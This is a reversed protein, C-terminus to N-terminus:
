TAATSSTVESASSTTSATRSGAGSYTDNTLNGNADYQMVGSQGAPVGLRNTNADIAFQQGNIGTGFYGGPSRNGYRDLTQGQAGTYNTGNQYEGVWNLRNLADYGYNQQMASASSIADDNPVFYQQMLLNGNNDPGSGGPSAPQFSYYNVIGGRNWNDADNVTSLRMDWLQGRINRREKHYLPTTTGFQERSLGNWEDYSISAAYTRSVGDGLSGTFNQTRGAIDYTYNVVRGSPYTQSEVSGDLYYTRQVSFVPSWAGGGLNFYEKKNTVRGMVDYDFQIAMAKSGLMQNSWMRGRGNVAGDYYYWISPTGDNYDIITNRNINDYYYTATVGRADTRTLVNSNNDYTYGISWQSNGSVPDALALSSNADQEPNKARILRSLSDYMFYRHQIGQTVTSLNNLVDYSYSTQYNLHGAGPDEVIECLRGLADTTSQRKRGMQDQVTVQNGSYTTVVQASDPSTTTKVRGLADYTSTTWTGSPNVAAYCGSSRYPNSVRWVRGLADYQKDSTLYPTGPTGDYKFTRVGRGLGDFFLFDDTERGNTDLLTRTEIYPGCQHADVYNYTTRGGDPRLVATPRDLADNYQVTTTKGNADTSSTVRGTYPDYATTTVLPTSSSFGNGTNPVPSTAQTPYAYQYTSSYDVQSVLGRGDIAKVGNGAIDYQAYTNISTGAPLLWRSVRTVNGRAGYLTTFASDLGIIGPRDVLPAHYTDSAYNDYEYTTRARETGSSDFVQQQTPLDRIHISTLTYNTSNVPNTTLYDTHTRRRLLGPAGQGYDYEWVDTQNNYQDFGVTQGTPDAPDISTQKSVLNPSVDLLTNVTEVLRPDNPPAGDASATWWSVPARQKWTSTTRRLVTTGDADLIETQYEKGHKWSSYGDGGAGQYELGIEYYYHRDRRLRNGSGDFTDVEVYSDGYNPRSITMKSTLNSGDAYVRRSVIRRYVIQGSGGGTAGSAPGGPIGAAWDYEIAGGTPLEVRALEGYSNYFFKYSRGNPLWLASVKDPNYYTSSSSGNLDPFLQQYTQLAYGTSQQATGPRLVNSLATRTIRITRPTGGIGNYTIQDESASYTLTVDRNLSDTVKSLASQSNYTFSIRNGNRDRKWAVFGVNIRYRTGDRLLLYGSPLDDGGDMRDYIPADSIFTAATGDATIFETGRSNGNLTCYGYSTPAGNTAKDRLEYETGDPATFLLRTLVRQFNGTGYPPCDMWVGGGGSRAVLIGPGYKPKYEIGWDEDPYYISNGYADLIERVRWHQEIPLTLSTQAGGRGSIQLFPLSFNLNGNYFNLNDFGSLPYSGAPAGPEIGLKPEVNQAIVNVSLVILLLSIAFLLRFAFKLYPRSSTKTHAM